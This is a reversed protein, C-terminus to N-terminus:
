TDAKPTRLVIRDGIPLADLALTGGEGDEHPFFAGIKTWHAKAREGAAEKVSYAHYLPAQGAKRTASQQKM